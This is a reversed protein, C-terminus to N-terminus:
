CIELDGLDVDGAWSYTAVDGEADVILSDGQRRITADLEFGGDDLVFDDGTRSVVNLTVRDFCGEQDDDDYITISGSRIDLYLTEAENLEWVGFVDDGPGSPDDDDCAVLTSASAVAAPRVPHALATDANSRGRESDHKM